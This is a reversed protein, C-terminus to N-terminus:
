YAYAVSIFTEVALTIPNSNPIVGVRLDPVLFVGSRGMPVDVGAAAQIVAIFSLGKETADLNIGDRLQVSVDGGKAVEFAGGYWFYSSTYHKALIGLGLLNQSLSATPNSSSSSGSIRANGKMRSQRFTLYPRFVWKESFPYDYFVSFYATLSTMTSVEYNTGADATTITRGGQQLYSGVISLGMGQTRRYELVGTSLREIEDRDRIFSRVIADSLIYGARREGDYTVLVKRYPGYTKASIVVVDGKMLTSVVRGQKNKTAYVSIPEQVHLDLVAGAHPAFVVFFLATFVFAYRSYFM